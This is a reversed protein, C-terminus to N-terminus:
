YYSGYQFNKKSISVFKHFIIEKKGISHCIISYENGCLLAMTYCQTSSISCLLPTAFLINISIISDFIYLICLIQDYHYCGFFDYDLLNVNYWKKVINILYHINLFM